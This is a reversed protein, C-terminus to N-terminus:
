CENAEQRPVEKRPHVSQDDDIPADEFEIEIFMQPEIISDKTYMLASKPKM